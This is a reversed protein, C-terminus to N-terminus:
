RKIPFWSVDSKEIKDFIYSENGDYSSRDKQQLYAKFYIYNWLYHEQKVHYIYGKGKDLKQRNM